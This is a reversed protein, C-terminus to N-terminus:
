RNILKYVADSNIIKEMERSAYSGMRFLYGYNAYFKTEFFFSYGFAKSSFKLYRMRVPIKREWLYYVFNIRVLKHIAISYGHILTHIAYYFFRLIIFDIEAHSIKVPNIGDENMAKHIENRILRSECKM